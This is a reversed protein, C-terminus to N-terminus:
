PPAGTVARFVVGFPEGLQARYFEITAQREMGTHLLLRSYGNSKAYNRLFEILQKGFGKGQHVPHIAMDFLWLIKGRALLEIEQVGAFGVLVGNSRIGFLTYGNATMSALNRICSERQLEPWLVTMIPFAEQWLTETNLIAINTSHEM